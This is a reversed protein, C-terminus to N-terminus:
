TKIPLFYLQKDSFSLSFTLYMGHKVKVRIQSITVLPGADNSTFWLFYVITKRATNERDCKFRKWFLLNAKGVEAPKRRADNAETIDSEKLLVPGVSTKAVSVAM